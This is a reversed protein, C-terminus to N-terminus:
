FRVITFSQCSLKVGTLTDNGVLNQFFDNGEGGIVVDDGLGADIAYGFSGDDDTITFDLMDDGATATIGEVSALNQIQNDSTVVSFVFDGAEPFLDPDAAVLEISTDDSDFSSYDITGFGLADFLNFELPDGEPPVEYQLIRARDQGGDSGNVGKFKNRVFGVIFVM